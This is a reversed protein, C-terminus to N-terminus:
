MISQKCPLLVTLNTTQENDYLVTLKQTIVWAKTKASSICFMSSAPTMNPIFGAAVDPAPDLQCDGTPSPMALTRRGPSSLFCTQILLLILLYTKMTIYEFSNSVHNLLLKYVFYHLFTMLLWQVNNKFCNLCSDTILMLLTIKM